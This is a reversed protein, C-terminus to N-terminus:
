RGARKFAEMAENLVARDVAVFGDLRVGALGEAAREDEALGLFSAILKSVEGPKVRDGVSCLVSSPLAPSQYVVELQDAFPLRHLAEAQAGDLLLVISEGKAAKRLGSLVRNSFVIEVSDPLTGWGGLAPGRVFGPSHGGLSAVQWGELSEAAEVLGKPAVLTWPEAAPRGAPIAQALPVLGFREHHELFFPMTVLVLGTEPKSIAELGRDETEFYVASLDEAPWSPSSSVAAALGNMAAQAEETSGPFGPACVVLGPGGTGAAGTLAGALNLVSCLMVLSLVKM